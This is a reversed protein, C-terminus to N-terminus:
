GTVPPFGPRPHFPIPAASARRDRRPRPPARPPSRARPGRRSRGGPRPGSRPRTGRPRGLSARGRPPWGGKVVAPGVAQTSTTSPPSSAPSTTSASPVPPTETRARRSAFTILTARRRWRRRSRPAPAPARGRRRGCGRPAARRGAHLPARGHGPGGGVPERGRPWSRRRRGSGSRTGAAAARGGRRGRRRAAELGAVVRERILAREYQALSAFLHFVLEGTATTTDITESLSRLGVGRVRLDAVIRVLHPLSRGLRDLRWVVLVDSSTLYELCAKLGPRDDRGGSAKDEYM